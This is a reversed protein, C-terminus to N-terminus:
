PAEPREALTPDTVDYTLVRLCFRDLDAAFAAAFEEDAALVRDVPAAAILERLEDSRAAIQALESLARGSETSATSTGTLMALIRQDDWGLLERSTVCFARLDHALATHLRFHLELSAHALAIVARVHGDLEDDSMAPLDAGQRDAIRAAAVNRRRYWTDIQRGARGAGAGGAGHRDPSAAIPRTADALAGDLGAPYAGGPREGFPVARMYVWGGIEIFRVTELLSGTEATIERGWDEMLLLSKAFPSLPAPFHLAERDWTGPPPEAHDVVLPPPTAVLTVAFEETTIATAIATAISPTPQRTAILRDM